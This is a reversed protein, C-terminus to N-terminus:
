KVFKQVGEFFDLMYDELDELTYKVHKSASHRSGGSSGTQPRPRSLFSRYAPILRESVAIRLEERLQPDIVKWATQNRYLEEFAANFSRAKDKVTPAASGGDDRLVSLVTIWSARLYGTEYQRIQGRHRRIWDDGLLERLPSDMVKQVIYYLNNMLFIHKLGADDYLCSKEDMKRLLRTLLELMCRGSPTSTAGGGGGTAEDGDVADATNVLIMDLTSRCDALLGCYNIVYRNMPHIEGGQVPRRSSEGQIASGFEEITRRVTSGLRAAVASVEAAFLERADGTFLAELEPAVDALAEYMGLTRYLKETARASMAVADAFGLLQLVCGRSVDAFCEHGLEEDSAFVEDCLRREGALLTRVVARIAHNWRRMKQDLLAWEMRLVEEIAVPEAAGLQHAVAEALADRRATVYVQALEPGYGARLMRDGVGRVSAAARPSLRPSADPPTAADDLDDSSLSLRRASSSCLLARAEEELRPMAAQVAEAARSALGGQLAAAALADDVAYLYDTMGSSSSSSNCRRIVDEAAAFAEEEHEQEQEEVEREDCGYAEGAAEGEAPPSMPLLRADYISLVRMMDDAANKSVAMRKVVDTPPAKSVSFSASTSAM